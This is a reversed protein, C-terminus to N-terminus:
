LWGFDKAAVWLLRAAMLTMVFKFALRFWEERMRNLSHEGVQNGLMGAAIMAGCFPLWAGIALGVWLFALMKAIHTTAMLAAMTGVHNRRDPSAAAVFAGVLTGTASVFVGLLTVFFGLFAFRGREPGFQGVKPLWTIILIFVALGGMLAGTPLTVFLKAGLLAGLACGLTFPILTGKLIYQRMSFARTFGMGLQIVTHVPVLVTPPLFSAMIVLLMLGGAAGTVISFYTSFFSAVCLSMFLWPGIDPTGLFNGDM